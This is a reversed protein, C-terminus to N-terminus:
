CELHITPEPLWQQKITGRGEFTGDVTTVEIPGEYLNLSRNVEKTTYVPLIATPIPLEDM